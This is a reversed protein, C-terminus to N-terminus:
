TFVPRAESRETHAPSKQQIRNCSDCPAKAAAADAFPATCVYHTAYHTYTHAQRCILHRERPPACRRADAGGVFALSQKPTCLRRRRRNQPMRICRSAVRALAHTTHYILVGRMFHFHATFHRHHASATAQEALSETVTQKDISRPM